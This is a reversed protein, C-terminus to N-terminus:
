AKLYVIEEVSSLPTSIAEERKVPDVRALKGFDIGTKTGISRISVQYTKFEGYVFEEKRLYDAQSVGYGTACLKKTRDHVFAIVKFFEVPIQVGYKVPDDKHFVPGTIVTIRMDDQRANELAYNELALWIPANFPQMQPTANTVHFTDACAIRATKLEGWIPDEKRTMHGRSFRPPVGYCENIIQLKKGLRSDTRWPVRSVGRKSQQGNINCISFCCMRRKANMMVSFHEYKLESTLKGDSSFKVVNQKNKVIKPLPVKFTKGLFAEDYGERDKYSAPAVELRPGETIAHKKLVPTSKIYVKTNIKGLYKLIQGSKVAYNEKRLDGMFHLGVAYGTHNDLVVSGSNGGLTTCDHFFYWSGSDYEMVEGPSCRKVEYIDKFVKSAATPSIIGNPDYAPYGIVSVFKDKKLPTDSIPIPQPTKPHKGMRLFAIDPQSKGGGTMFLVKEVPVEFEPTALNKGVYEEKFDIFAEVTEGLANRLFTITNRKKTAMLAAVHRNTVIVNESVLWGTGGFARGIKLFEIRGVSPVRSDLKGIYPMFRRRLEASEPAEIRNNRILLAPRLHMQVMAEVLPMENRPGIMAKSIAGVGIGNRRAVPLNRGSNLLEELETHAAPDKKLIERYNIM